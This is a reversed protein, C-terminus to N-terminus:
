GQERAHGLKFHVAALAVYLQPGVGGTKSKKQVQNGSKSASHEDHSSSPLQKRETMKGPKGPPPLVVPPLKNHLTDSLTMCAKSSARHVMPSLFKSPNHITLETKGGITHPQRVEKLFEQLIM